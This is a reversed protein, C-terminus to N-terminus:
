ALLLLVARDRLEFDHGTCSDVVREVDETALFRPVSSLRWSAFGVCFLEKDSLPHFPHTIRVLRKATISAAPEHTEANQSWHVLRGCAHM